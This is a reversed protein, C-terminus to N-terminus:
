IGGLLTEIQEESLNATQALQRIASERLQKRTAQEAELLQAEAQDKARQELFAEKDAGTLEVVQNDIGIQIKSTTAM